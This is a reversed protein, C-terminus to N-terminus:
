PDAASPAGARARAAPCDEPGPRVPVTAPRQGPLHKGAPRVPKDHCGVGEGSRRMLACHISVARRETMAAAVTCRLCWWATSSVCLRVELTLGCRDGSPATPATLGASPLTAGSSPTPRLLCAVQYSDPRTATGCDAALVRGYMCFGPRGAAVAFWDDSRVPASLPRDCRSSLIPCPRRSCGRSPANAALYDSADGASTTALGGVWLSGLMLALAFWANICLRKRNMQMATPGYQLRRCVGVALRSRVGRQDHQTM